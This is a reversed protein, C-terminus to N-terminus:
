PTAPPQPERTRDARRMQRGDYPEAETGAEVGTARRHQCPFAALHHMRVMTGGHLVRAGNLGYTGDRLHLAGGRLSSAWRETQCNAMLDSSSPATTMTRKLRLGPHIGADSALRVWAGSRRLTTVPRRRVARQHGARALQSGAGDDTGVTRQGQTRAFSV